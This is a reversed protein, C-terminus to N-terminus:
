GSLSRGQTRGDLTRMAAAARARMDRLARALAAWAADMAERRLQGARRECTERPSLAEARPRPGGRTVVHYRGDGDLYVLADPSSSSIPSM